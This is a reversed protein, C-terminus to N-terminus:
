RRRLADIVSRDIQGTVELGRDRQFRRLANRTAPGVSGDIAGHYYGERALAEQIQSVSSDGYGSGYDSQAYEEPVYGDDYYSYGYPYGWGYGYGWFWPDIIVWSNNHWHCRHGHWFHDRGRDWNRTQRAVVRGETTIGQAALTNRRSASLRPNAASDTRRNLTATRNIASRRGSASYVGPKLAGTRNVAHRPGTGTYARNRYAAQSSYRPTSRYYRATSGSFNRSHNSYHGASSSFHSPSFSHSGGGRPRGQAPQQLAIGAIVVVGFIGITKMNKIYSRIEDGAISSKSEAVQLKLRTSRDRSTAAASAFAFFIYALAREANTSRDAPTVTWCRTSVKTPGPPVDARCTCVFAEKQCDSYASLKGSARRSLRTAGFILSAALRSSNRPPRGLWSIVPKM